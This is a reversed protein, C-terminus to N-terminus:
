QMDTCHHRISRLAVMDSSRTLVAASRYSNGNSADNDGTEDNDNDDSNQSFLIEVM